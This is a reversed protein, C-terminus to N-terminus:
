GGKWSAVKCILQQEIPQLQCVCVKSGLLKKAPLCIELCLIARVNSLVKTCPALLRRIDLQHTHQSSNRNQQQHGGKCQM